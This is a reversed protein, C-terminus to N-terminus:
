NLCRAIRGDRTGIPYDEESKFADLTNSIRHQIVIGAKTKKALDDAICEQIAALDDSFSTSPPADLFELESNLLIHDFSSPIADSYNSM